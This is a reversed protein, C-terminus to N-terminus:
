TIRESQTTNPFFFFNFIAHRENKGAGRQACARRRVPPVRPLVEHGRSRPRTRTEFYYGTM